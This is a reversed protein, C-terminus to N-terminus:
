VATELSEVDKLVPVVDKKIVGDSVKIVNKDPHLFYEVLPSM